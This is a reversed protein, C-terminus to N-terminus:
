PYSVLPRCLLLSRSHGSHCKPWLKPHAMRRFLPLRTVQLMLGVRLDEAELLSIRRAISWTRPNWILPKSPENRIDVRWLGRSYLRGYIWSPRGSVCCKWWSSLRKPVKQMKGFEIYGHFCLKHGLINLNTIGLLKNHRLESLIDLTSDLCHCRTWCRWQQM